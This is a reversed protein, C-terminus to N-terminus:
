HKSGDRIQAKLCHDLTKHAVEKQKVKQQQLLSDLLEADVLAARFAPYKMHWEMAVLTAVYNHFGEDGKKGKIFELTKGKFSGFEMKYLPKLGTAAAAEERQRSAKASENTKQAAQRAASANDHYRELWDKEEQAHEEPTMERLEHEARRKEHQAKTNSPM